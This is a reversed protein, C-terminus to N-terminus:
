ARVTCALSCPPSSPLWTVRPLEPFTVTNRGHAKFEQSNADKERARLEAVELFLDRNWDIANWALDLHADFVIM